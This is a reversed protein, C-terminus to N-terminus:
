RMEDSPYIYAMGARGTQLCGRLCSEIEEDGLEECVSIYEFPHAGCEVATQMLEVCNEASEFSRVLQGYAKRKARPLEEQWQKSVAMEGLVRDIGAALLEPAPTECSLMCFRFSRETYVEANFSDGDILGSEYWQSYASSAPGFAIDLVLELALERALLDRGECAPGRDAYVMFLQPHSVSFHRVIPGQPDSIVPVPELAPVSLGSPATEWRKIAQDATKILSEIDTDGSLFLNMNEPRYYARHWAGLATADILALDDISGAIEDSIAHQGYACRLAATFGGWEADDQYLHIESTIIEREKDILAQPWYPSLVLEFLLDIQPCLNESCHLSYQTSTFSTSANVEGGLASFRDSIDGSSKEFLCHEIFHAMGATSGGLIPASHLSGCGVSILAVQQRANKKPLFWLTCGSKLDARVVDEGLLTQRTPM